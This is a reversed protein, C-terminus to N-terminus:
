LAERFVTLVPSTGVVYGVLKERPNGSEDELVLRVTFRLNLTDDTEDLVEYSLLRRGELWDFDQAVIEPQLARLDDPSRRQQWADLTTRLTARAKDPVVKKAGGGCGIPM